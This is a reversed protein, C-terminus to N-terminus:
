ANRYKSRFKLIYRDFGVYICWALFVNLTFAVVFSPLTYLERSDFTVFGQLFASYRIVENVLGHILYIPYTLHGLIDDLQSRKANFLTLVLVSLVPLSFLYTLTVSIPSVVKVILIMLITLGIFRIRTFSIVLLDKYHYLVSGLSYPLLAAPLFSYILNDALTQYGHALSIKSGVWLVPFLVLCIIFTRLSYQPKKALITASIVYMLIEVEIAWSVSVVTEVRGIGLFTTSLIVINSFVARLSYFHTAQVEDLGKEFFFIYVVITLLTVFYYTPYLRFFRSLFFSKIGVTSFTYKENLVLTMLYGSLLFFGWVGIGAYVEHGTYHTFVVMGAFIFRLVGFM